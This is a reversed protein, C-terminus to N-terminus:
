RLYEEASHVANAGDAVATVIQRLPKTRLDGAAFLGSLSTKCNEGAKIFGADDVEALNKFLGNVPTIGVAIFVGDTKIETVAGDAVSEVTVSSVTNEGNIETVRSNLVLEVNEKQMLRNVLLNAGRFSERRHVVYVKKCLNSLYLADTLATDGGGIVVATKGRYFAGDCHACYSVGKATLKEEGPVGLHRSVAGTAAIVTRFKEEAGDTFGITFIGDSKKVSVIEKNVITVGANQTHRSFVDALSFGDASPIGLYNEIEGTNIIQGGSLPYKEYLVCSLGARVAYLGACLGAPGGGIVAIDKIVEVMKDDEKCFEKAYMNKMCKNHFSM